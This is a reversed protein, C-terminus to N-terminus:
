CCGKCYSQKSQFDLVKGQHDFEFHCCRLLNDKLIKRGRQIRSKAASLSLGEKQAVENQTIGDIESLTLAQRYLPPLTNILPLFWDAIEKRTEEHSEPVPNSLSEPLEKSPKQARYFDIITNRTISYIWSQIKSNEKLTDMRSHIKLFVDQLIDEADDKNNIRKLIFGLLRSHYEEFIQETLKDDM